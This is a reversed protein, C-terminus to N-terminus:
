FVFKKPIFCKQGRPVFYPLRGQFAGAIMSYTSKWTGILYDCSALSLMDVLVNDLVHKNSDKRVALKSHKAIASSVVVKRKPNDSIVKRKAETSDSAVFILPNKITDFLSCTSFSTVDGGYLFIRSEKFDARGDGKRIHFAVSTYEKNNAFEKTRIKVLQQIYEKPILHKRVINSLLYFGHISPEYQSYPIDPLLGLKVLKHYNEENYVIWHYLPCNSTICIHTDNFISQISENKIRNVLPTNDFYCINQVRINKCSGLESNGIIHFIIM